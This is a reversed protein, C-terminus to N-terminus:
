DSYYSLQFFDADKWVPFSQRIDLLQDFSLHISLVQETGDGGDAMIKGLPDIVLSDGQYALGKGDVGVRNAGIVFAQNEIARAQLLTRWPHRRQVPWNAVNVMVDYEVGDDKKQNRCFVPFRLDYCITLLFRWQRYEVVVREKGQSYRKHEGGMQFLHSKDYYQYEGDPFVFFLRNVFCNPEIECAVSGTVAAQYKKAQQQMWLVATQQNESNPYLQEPKATFGSTFMEPLVILDVSSDDSFLTSLLQDIHTLNAEPDLWILDPQVVALQLDSPRPDPTATMLYLKTM